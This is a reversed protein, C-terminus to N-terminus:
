ALQPVVEDLAQDVTKVTIAKQQILKLEAELNAPTVAYTPDEATADVEHYVLVLWSKDRLAQDVWLGVQAPTMTDLINQVKINNVDTGDKTNYGEDTSRHSRYYLKSTSLVKANYEGYPTAFNKAVAPGYWSRLSAQSNKLESDIQADTLTPLHPHTVTHSAIEARHNLLDGMEAQAQM